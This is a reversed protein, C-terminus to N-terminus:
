GVGCRHVSATSRLGGFFQHVEDSVVSVLGFLVQFKCACRIKAFVEVDGMHCGIPKGVVTVDIAQWVSRYVYVYM